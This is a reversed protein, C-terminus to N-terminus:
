TKHKSMTTSLNSFEGLMQYPGTVDTFRHLQLVKNGDRTVVPAGALAKQLDFPKM